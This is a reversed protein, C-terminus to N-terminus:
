SSRKKQKLLNIQIGIQIVISRKNEKVLIQGQYIENVGRIKWAIKNAKCTLLLCLLLCKIIIRLFRDRGVEVQAVNNYNM